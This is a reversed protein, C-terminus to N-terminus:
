FNSRLQMLVLPVFVGHDKHSEFTCTPWLTVHDVSFDLETGLWWTEERITDSIKARLKWCTWSGDPGQCKIHLQKVIETPYFRYFLLHIMSEYFINSDDRLRTNGVARPAEGATLQFIMPQQECTSQMAEFKPSRSIKGEWQKVQSASDLSVEADGPPHFRHHVKIM